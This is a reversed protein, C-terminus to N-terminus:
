QGAGLAALVRWPTLPLENVEVGLANAVANAIAPATPIIPPEGLGKAGTHNARADAVDICFADIRPVDRMTPIKYDHLTPNLSLGLARDMVREEFLAYGLGQLIGGELQSGALLPNIVRGSDHAAVIRLVRVVGTETDVEVEAFQAGFTSLSLGDPNPGRSGRGIIMVSGLAAAVEAITISRGGREARIVGDRARLASADADLLGGAADLLQARADEAAMRVAPGVSAVTLSGWSNEAYPTRETDGLIVRVDSLRAGLAEAAIQALVTRTGTGLDQTGALVDASGDGNLRLIAYAPPGGGGGWVQSAMGVGRRLRPAPADPDDRPPGGVPFRDGSGGRGRVVNKAGPGIGSWGFRAAGQRYCEDLRKATYARGKEENEAAYNALRLALPDMGIDRALLDMARELGFAGEVHGPARFSSMAGTNTYAFTQTTRVNPCGYMEHYIKGPGALWGDIGLPVEAELVIATLRGDRRAGLTVRQVTAPRNGSDVQEGERDNLCSVPRGTRRALLVAILANTSAGNKAGFGGGMYDTIVRVRSLTLGFAEALDARTNFVGQTSEWVTVGDGTWEAVAGHPELACHLAVPTRYEGTVTVEAEALGREVDGREAVRPSRRVRNDEGRVRPAGPALADAGSIAHPAPEYSVRIARVGARAAELTDACVAADPQGAYHVTPDFLTVGGSELEPADARAIADRVGPIALAPLLDLLVVRGSALPARLVAAHLMGPRQVDATYRARGTVKEPADARPAPSGVVTLGADADWPVPEFAPREVVKVEERGEVEVRTTIFRAGPSEGGRTERPVTV